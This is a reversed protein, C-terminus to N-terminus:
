PEIRMLHFIDHFKVSTSCSKLTGDCDVLFGETPSKSESIEIRALLEGFKSCTGVVFRSSGVFMYFYIHGHEKSKIYVFVSGRDVQM